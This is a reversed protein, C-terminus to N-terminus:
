INLLTGRIQGDASTGQVRLKIAGASFDEIQMRLTKLRTPNNRRDTNQLFSLTQMTAFNVSHTAWMSTMLRGRAGDRVLDTGREPYVPDSGLQTGINVLANQLTAELGTAVGSFDFAPGGEEFTLRTGNM